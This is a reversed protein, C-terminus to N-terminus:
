ILDRGWQTHGRQEFDQCLDRVIGFATNYRFHDIAAVASDIRTLYDSRYRDVAYQEVKKRMAVLEARAQVAQNFEGM